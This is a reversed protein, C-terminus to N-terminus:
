FKEIVPHKKRCAQLIRFIVEKEVPTKAIHGNMRCQSIMEADPIATFAYVPLDQYYKEPRSRIEMTVSYGDMEPMMIDMLVADYQNTMVLDLAKRGNDALDVSIEWQSIILCILRQTFPNDEAVLVRMGKLSKNSPNNM